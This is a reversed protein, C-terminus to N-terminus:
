KLRKENSLSGDRNTLESNEELLPSKEDERAAFSRSDTQQNASTNVDRSGRDNDQDVQQGRKQRLKQFRDRLKLSNDEEVSKYICTKGDKSFLGQERLILERCFDTYKLKNAKNLYKLANKTQKREEDTLEQNTIDIDLMDAGPAKTDSYFMQIHRTMDWEEANPLTGPPTWVARYFSINVLLFLVGVLGVLCCRFSIDIQHIGPLDHDNHHFFHTNHNWEDSILPLCYTFLYVFFIYYIM